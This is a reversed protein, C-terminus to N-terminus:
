DESPVATMVTKRSPINKRKYAEINQSFNNFRPMLETNYINIAINFQRVQQATKEDDPTKLAEVIKPCENQSFAQLADIYELTEILLADKPKLTKLTNLQTRKEKLVLQLVKYINAIKNTTDRKELHTMFDEFPMQTELFIKQITQTFGFVDSVRKRANATATDSQAFKISYTKAFGIATNQFSANVSDVFSSMIESEKLRALAERATAPPPAQMTKKLNDLSLFTEIKKTCNLASLRLKNFEVPIDKPLNEYLEIATKINKNLDLLENAVKAITQADSHVLDVTLNYSKDAIANYPTAVLDWMVHPNPKNQAILIPTQFFAFFFVSSLVIKKM